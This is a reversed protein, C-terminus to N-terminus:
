VSVKRVQLKAYFEGKATLCVYKAYKSLGPYPTDLCGDRLSVLGKQHLTRLSRSLVTKGCPIDRRLMWLPVIDGAMYRQIDEMNALGGLGKQGEPWVWDMRTEHYISLTKLIAKEHKGLRM